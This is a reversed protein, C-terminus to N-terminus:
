RFSHKLKRGNEVFKKYNEMSLQNFRKRIAADSLPNPVESLLLKLSLLKEM